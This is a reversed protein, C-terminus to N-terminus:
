MGFVVKRVEYCIVQKILSAAQRNTIGSGGVNQSHNDTRTMSRGFLGKFYNTIHEILLLSNSIWGGNIKLLRVRGRNLRVITSRHYFSTNRDRDRIWNKRSKQFWIIEEQHFVENLEEMIKKEPKQLGPNMNYFPSKQIGRLCAELRKKRQFVNGFVEWNWERSAKIVEELAGTINGIHKGWAMKWIMSYDDKTLWAAAFRFPKSDKSPCVGRNSM